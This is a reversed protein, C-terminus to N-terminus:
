FISFLFQYIINHIHSRLRSKFLYMNLFPNFYYIDCYKAMEDWSFTWYDKKSLTDNVHGRSYTNGRYNGMWVDYGADSLHFALAHGLNFCKILKMNQCKLFYNTSNKLLSILFHLLIESGSALEQAFHNTSQRIFHIWVNM